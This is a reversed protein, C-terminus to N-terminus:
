RWVLEVEVDQAVLAAVRDREREAGRDQDM